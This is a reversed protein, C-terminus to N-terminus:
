LRKNKSKQKINTTISQISNIKEDISNKSSRIKLESYKVVDPSLVYTGEIIIDKCPNKEDFFYGNMSCWEEFSYIKSNEKEFFRRSSYQQKNLVICSDEQYDEWCSKSFQNYELTDHVFDWEEKTKCHVVTYEVPFILDEFEYINYKNGNYIRQNQYYVLEGTGIGNQSGKNGFLLCPSNEYFNKYVAQNYKLVKDLQEQSKFHVVDPYCLDEVRISKREKVIKDPHTSPLYDQIEFSNVNLEEILEPCAFAWNTIPKFEGKVEELFLIWNRSCLTNNEWRDVKAINKVGNARFKYWKGVEFKPKIKDPHDEPLYESIESIPIEVTNSWRFTGEEKKYIKNTCIRESYYLIGDKEELFKLAGNKGFTGNVYWKGKELKPKPPTPAKEVKVTSESMNGASPDLIISYLKRSPMFADKSICYGKQSPFNATHIGSNFGTVVGVEDKLVGGSSPYNVLAKIKTGVKVLQEIEAQTLVEYQKENLLCYTGIPVVIRDDIFEFDGTYSARVYSDAVCCIARLISGEKFLYGDTSCEDSLLRIYDGDKAKFM